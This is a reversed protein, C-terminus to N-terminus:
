RSAAAIIGAGVVAGEGDYLAAVQGPAVAFAPEDLTLEFGGDTGVVDALVADSRYRLKAQVRTVDVHLSGHARVRTVALSDRPGVVVTNSEADTRLAYLPDHGSVGLGRRQGPTFRWSGDHEGVVAGHEDVIAGKRTEVGHRELFARYDGGALFCAEQSEPRAAVALGAAAAEARTATKDQGGLPFAIRDLLRPELMALMYSQDKGAAVARALLRRGDREATRAYHGTWLVAAGAREAFALLAEFRFSGNCRTCPNPTSGSAYGAVFPSVVAERFADRLDLTVHPIGL